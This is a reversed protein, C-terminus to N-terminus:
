GLAARIAVTALTLLGIAVITAHRDARVLIPPMPEIDASRGVTAKAVAVFLLAGSTVLGVVPAALLAVLFIGILVRGLIRLRRWSTPPPRPRGARRILLLANATGLVLLGWSILWFGIEGPPSFSGSTTYGPATSLLAFFASGAGIIGLLAVLLLRRAGGTLFLGGGILTCLVAVTTWIQIGSGQLRLLEADRPPLDRGTVLEIGTYSATHSLPVEPVDSEYGCQPSITAFPLLFAVLILWFGAPSFREFPKTSATSPYASAEIAVRSV